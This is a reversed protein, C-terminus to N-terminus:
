LFLPHFCQNKKTKSFLDWNLSKFPIKSSIEFCSFHLHPPLKPNKDTNSVTAILDGKHITDGIKLIKNPIIHAYTYIITSDIFGVSEPHEVVLTQGLFDNCINLIKGDEFAPILTTENFNDLKGENVRYYTIDFGEHLTARTGFDDWWKDWSSFLMGTHFYWQIPSKNGLRNLQSINELFSSFKNM